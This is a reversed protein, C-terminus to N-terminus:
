MRTVFSACLPFRHLLRFVSAIERSSYGLLSCSSSSSACICKLFLMFSHFLPLCEARLQTVCVVCHMRRSSNNRQVLHQHMTCRANLIARLFIIRLSYMWNRISPLKHPRLKLIRYKGSILDTDTIWEFDHTSAVAQMHDGDYDILSNCKRLHARPRACTDMSNVTRWDSPGDFCRAASARTPVATLARMECTTTNFIAVWGVCLLSHFVSKSNPSFSLILNLRFLNLFASKAIREYPPSRRRCHRHCAFVIYVCEIESERNVGNMTSHQKSLRPPRHQTTSAFCSRLWKRTNRFM